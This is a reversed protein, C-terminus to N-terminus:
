SIARNTSDQRNTKTGGYNLNKIYNKLKKFNARSTPYPKKKSM